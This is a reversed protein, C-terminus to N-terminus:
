ENNKEGKEINIEEAPVTHIRGDAFKIEAYTSGHVIAYNMVEVIDKGKYTATYLPRRESPSPKKSM